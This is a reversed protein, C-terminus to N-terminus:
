AMLSSMSSAWECYARTKTLEPKNLAIEKLAFGSFEPRQADKLRDFYKVIRGLNDKDARFTLATSVAHLVALDGPIEAQMPNLIIGDISPMKDFVSLFGTLETGVGEGLCGKM